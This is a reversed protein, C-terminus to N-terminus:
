GQGACIDSTYPVCDIYRCWSCVFDSDNYFTYLLVIIAVVLALAFSVQLIQKRIGDITGFVIYPLLWIGVVVGGLFGGVHAFNDIYPLTGIGLFIALKILLTFVTGCKNPILQWTQFIDVTEVGLMGYIAASSGNSLQQASFIASFMFGCAGSIVYMLLTRWFGAVFEVQSVLTYQGLANMVFHIVGVHLFIATIFRYFQNPNTSGGRYGTQQYAMGCIQYICDNNACSDSNKSWIGSLVDCHMETTLACQGYIGYCCPRLKISSCVSWSTCNLGNGRYTQGSSAKCSTNQVMGCEGLSNRCCGYNTENVKSEYQATIVISEDRMCAAWKSGWYVLDQIQPGYYPNSATQVTQEGSGDFLDVKYVKIETSTGWPAVKGNTIMLIM